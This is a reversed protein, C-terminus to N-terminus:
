ALPATKCLGKPDILHRGIDNSDARKWPDSPNVPLTNGLYRKLGGGWSDKYGSEDMYRLADQQSMGLLYMKTCRVLWAPGIAAM